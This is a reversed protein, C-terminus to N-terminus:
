NYSSWAVAENGLYEKADLMDKKIEIRYKTNKKRKNGIKFCM